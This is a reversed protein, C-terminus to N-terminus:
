HQEKRIDAAGTMITEGRQTACSLTLRNVSESLQERPGARFELVDGPWVQAEFRVDFAHVSSLGFQHSAYSALLGAPFMGMAFVTPYGAAQATPVDRHILNLDGSAGAYRAIGEATIVASGQVVTVSLPPAIDAPCIGPLAAPAPGATEAYAREREALTMFQEAVLAGDPERFSRHVVAFSLSGGRRGQRSFRESVEADVFLADGVRVPRRYSYQERAHLTRSPDFGLSEPRSTTDHETWSARTLFTLPAVTGERPTVPCGLAGAFDAVETATVQMLWPRM